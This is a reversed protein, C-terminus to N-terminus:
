KRGEFIEALIAEIRKRIWTGVHEGAAGAVRELDAHVEHPFRLIVAHTNKRTTRAAERRQRRRAEQDPSTPSSPPATAGTRQFGKRGPITIGSSM